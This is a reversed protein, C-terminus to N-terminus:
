GEHWGTLISKFNSGIKTGITCFYIHVFLFISVIFAFSVHIIDNVLIGSIGIIQNPIVEPFLFGWGTIVLITMCVYTALVYTFRQLPNFKNVKSIPFPTSQKKFIGFTYYRIQIILDKIFNKRKIRYQKGNTTFLNGAIFFLYNISLIIGCINHASVAIDFRIFASELGSYQLSLGSLILLLCLIGNVMHWIRVWIPYLYEKEM